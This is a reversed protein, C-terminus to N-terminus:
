IHHLVLEMIVYIQMISAIISIIKTTKVDELFRGILLFVLPLIPILYRGQIGMIELTETKSWSIFMSTFVLLICSIIIGIILIKEIKKLNTKLKGLTSILISLVLLIIPFIKITVAENWELKLGFMEQIYQVGNTIITYILKQFYRIPNSIIYGIPDNGAEVLFTDKQIGIIYWGIDLIASIMCITTIFIIKTKRTKFKEKPLLFLLPLLIIYITKTLGIIISLITLIAIDKKTIKKNKEERLKLIYAIFLFSTAVLMGDASLTSFGEIVIPAVCLLFLMNKGYPIIKIAYYLMAVCTIINAIRAIYFHVMSNTTFARGIIIGIIQPMYTLPSYAAIRYGWEIKSTNTSYTKENNIISEYTPKNDIANIVGEELYAKVGNSIFKGEAYEYIRLGHITEDHGKSVPMALTLLICFLPVIILFAKEPKINKKNYLYLSLVFTVICLLTLISFCINIKIENRVINEIKYSIYLFTVGITLILMIITTIEKKNKQLIKHM